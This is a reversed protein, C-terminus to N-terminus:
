ISQSGSDWEVPDYNGLPRWHAGQLDNEAYRAFGGNQQSQFFSPESGKPIVSPNRISNPPFLSFASVTKFAGWASACAILALAIGSMNYSFCHQTQMISSCSKRYEHFIALSARSAAYAAVNCSLFVAVQKFCHLGATKLNNTIIAM